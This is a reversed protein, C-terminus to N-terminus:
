EIFPFLIPVFELLVVDDLILQKLELAVLNLLWDTLLDTIM